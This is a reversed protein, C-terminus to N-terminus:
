QTLQDFFIQEEKLFKKKSIFKTNETLDLRTLGPVRSSSRFFKVKKRDIYTNKLIHQTAFAFKSFKLFYNKEDFSLNKLKSVKIKKKSKQVKEIFTDLDKVNISTIYDNPKLKLDHCVHKEIYKCKEVKLAHSCLDISNLNLGYKSHDAYGYNYGKKELFNFLSFRLNKRKTPYSQFGYMFIIKKKNGRIYKILKSIKNLDLGSINIFTKNFNKISDNIMSLNDSESSSVKLNVYRKFRKCFNYSETDFPELILNNKKMNAKILKEWKNFSIELKKYRKFNKNKTSFLNAVKFIQFKIFNSKSKEHIGTILKVLESSGMHASAIETIFYNKM